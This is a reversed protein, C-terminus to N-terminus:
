APSALAERVCATAAVRTEVGLKRYIREVHHNVTRVSVGLIVAIESDRKGDVLWRLVDAERPTLGLGTLATVPVETYRRTLLLVATTGGGRREIALQRGDCETLLPRCAPPIADLRAPDVEHGAAWDAVPGPLRGPERPAGPFFEALWRRALPTAHRVLGDGGVVVVGLGAADIGHGLAQLNEQLASARTVARHGHLLHPLLVDLLRREGGTFDRGGSRGLAIGVSRGDIGPFLTAVQYETGAHRYWENYITLRRWQQRSIFDSWAVWRRADPTAAFYRLSPNEHIHAAVIVPGDRGPPDAVGDSIWTWRGSAADIYNYSCRDAGVLRRLGRAVAVTYDRLTAAEDLRGLFDLAARCERHSL